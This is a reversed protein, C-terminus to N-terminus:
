LSPGESSKFFEYGSTTAIQVKIGIMIIIDSVIEIAHQLPQQGIHEINQQLTHETITEIILM